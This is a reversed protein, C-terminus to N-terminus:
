MGEKTIYLVGDERVAVEWKVLAMEGESIELATIYRTHVCSGTNLYGAQAGRPFSPRHTHGAVVAIQSSEGWHALRKEVKNKRKPNEPTNFPNKMGVLELPRWIYRVLFRGLWWLQCNFFDAQHGHILLMEEGTQAHVLLIAEEVTINPFLPVPIDRNKPRYEWLNERVWKERRKVMDHNGYIMHFRGEQYLVALLGFIHDYEGKIDRMHREEWLEDGDGLEIYTFGHRYYHALATYYLKQNKAFDDANSGRGRHCDSFLVIKSKDDIVLRKARSYALNLRRDRGKAGRGRLGGPWTKSM